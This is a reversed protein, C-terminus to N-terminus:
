EDHWPRECSKRHTPVNMSTALIKEPLHV